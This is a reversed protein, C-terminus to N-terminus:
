CSLKSVATRVHRPFRHRRPAGSGGGALREQVTCCQEAQALSLLAAAVHGQWTVPPALPQLVSYRNRKATGRLNVGQAERWEVGVYLFHTPQQAVGLYVVYGWLCVSWCIASALGHLDVLGVKKAQARCFGPLWFPCGPSQVDVRGCGLTRVPFTEEAAVSRLRRAPSYAEAIALCGLPLLRTPWLHQAAAVADVVVCCSDCTGESM